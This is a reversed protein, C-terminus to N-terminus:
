VERVLIDAIRWSKQDPIPYAMPWKTLFDQFVPVYKNGLTTKPLEMIDVGVIQFPRNVPIPHLPPRTVRGGGSVTACEPCNRAYQVAEPFMGEWWWHRALTNFLRNGSFHAGMPGRHSEEMVKIRLHKPVVVRRPQNGKPNVFFLVDDLLVFLPSQLAIKRAQGEVSPLMGSELFQIIELLAPDKRQEQPLSDVGSLPNREPEAQLLADTSVESSDVHSVQVDTQAIGEKPAPAQPSRSLADANLNTKGSRYVIKM